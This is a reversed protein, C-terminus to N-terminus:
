VISTKQNCCSAFIDTGTLKGAGGGAADILTTSHIGRGRPDGMLQQYGINWRTDATRSEAGFSLTIEM